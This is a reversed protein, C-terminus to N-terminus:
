DAGSPEPLPPINPPPAPAPAGLINTLVWQGRVIPSTRDTHSSVMLVSGKGLLGWRAEDELTVRRFHNGYVDKIGYHRALRENLYTYDANVLAVLSRDERVISESFLKTEPKMAQRLSDDFDPFGSSNPVMRDLNRLYRWQGAFDDVLARAKPDAFVRRGRQDLVDA